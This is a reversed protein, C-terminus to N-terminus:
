NTTLHQSFLRPTGGLIQKEGSHSSLKMRKIICKSIPLVPEAGIQSSTLGARALEGAREDEPIGSNGPVWLLRINNGTEILGQIALRCDDVLTTMIHRGELAQLAAQSSSIM